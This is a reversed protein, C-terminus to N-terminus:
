KNQYIPVKLGVYVDATKSSKSILNSLISASGVTLPGLRMGAGWAFDNYQRLSIPSYFSFWKTELRPALTISNNIKNALKTNSKILSLSSLLSVYLKKNLKYDASINLATPLKIKADDIVETFLYNSDLFDDADDFNSTSVSSNNLDYSSLTSNKYNISGIDTISVGLKLLYKNDIRAESTNGKRWEYIFGIDAGFGTSLDKFEFSDNADFSNSTGYNIAGTTAVTESSADYNGTFGPSNIYAGGGGQLLKLTIGGKLFHNEKNLLVRGYVLGIEAWVNITSSLDESNFTFDETDDFDEQISEFLNGNINNLNNFVRARTILGVSNNANLNFMFSPGMVDASNFFNNKDKPFREVDDFEISEDFVDKLSLGFYDSGSFASASIINVDTRMRSDVVNAPNSLLGHVGSFNDITHGVYSQSFLNSSILVTILLLSLKLNKM